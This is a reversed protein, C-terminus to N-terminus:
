FTLVKDAYLFLNHVSWPDGLSGRSPESDGFRSTWCLGCVIIKGGLQEFRDLLATLPSEGNATRCNALPPTLAELDAAIAVGGLTPFLSVQNAAIADKKGDGDLDDSLLNIGIQVAICAPEVTTRPDTQVVIAISEQRDVSPEFGNRPPTPLGPKQGTGNGNGNGPVAFALSCLALLAMLLLARRIM